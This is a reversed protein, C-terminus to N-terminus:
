SREGQQELRELASAISQLRHTLEAVQARLEALTPEGPETRLLYGPAVGLVDALRKLTELAPLQGAQWRHVTRWNVGMRAALEEHTWGRAVRERRIRAGIEEDKVGLVGQPRM